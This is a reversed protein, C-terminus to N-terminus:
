GIRSPMGIMSSSSARGRSSSSSRAKPLRHYRTAVVQGDFVSDHWASATRDFNPCGASNLQGNGPRRQGM